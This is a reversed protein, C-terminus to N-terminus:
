HVIVYSKFPNRLKRKNIFCILIIDFAIYFELILSSYKLFSNCPANDQQISPTYHM